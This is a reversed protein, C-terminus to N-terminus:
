EAKCASFTCLKIFAPQIRFFFRFRPLISMTIIQPTPLLTKYAQLSCIIASQFWFLRYWFLEFAGEVIRVHQVISQRSIIHSVKKKLYFAFLFSCKLMGKCHVCRSFVKTKEGEFLHCVHCDFHFGYQFHVCIRSRIDAAACSEIPTNNLNRM